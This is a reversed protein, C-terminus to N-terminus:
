WWNPTECDEEGIAILEEKSMMRWGPLNNQAYLFKTLPMQRSAPLVEIHEISGDQYTVTFSPSYELSEGTFGDQYPITTHNSLISKVQTNNRLLKYYHSEIPTMYRVKAKHSRCGM